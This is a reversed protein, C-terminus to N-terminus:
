LGVLTDNYRFYCHSVVGPNPIVLIKGIKMNYMIEAHRMPERNKLLGEDVWYNMFGPCERLTEVRGELTNSDMLHGISKGDYYRSDTYYIISKIQGPTNDINKDEYYNLIAKWLKSAGGIVQVGLGSDHYNTICCGRAIEADYAGKGFFAHGVTYCMLPEETKKDVLLFGTRSSRYGQINNAVFLPKLKSSKEVIVVKTNRAFIRKALGCHYTIMNKFIPWKKENFIEHEYANIVRIGLENTKKWEEFPTNGTICGLDWFSKSSNRTILDNIKVGLKYKPLYFDLKVTNVEKDEEVEDILNYTIFVDRIVDKIYKIRAKWEEYTNPLFIKTEPKWEAMKIDKM